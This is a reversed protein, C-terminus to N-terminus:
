RKAKPKRKRPLTGLAKAYAEAEAPTCFEVGKNTIKVGTTYSM